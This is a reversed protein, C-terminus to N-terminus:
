NPQHRHTKQKRLITPMVFSKGEAQMKDVWRKASRIRRTNGSKFAEEATKHVRSADYWDEGAIKRFLGYWRMLFQQKLRGGPSSVMREELVTGHVTNGWKSEFYASSNLELIKKTM